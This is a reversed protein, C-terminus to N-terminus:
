ISLQTWLDNYLTRTEVPRVLYAECRDLVEQPAAMIEYLDM